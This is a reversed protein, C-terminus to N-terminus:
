RLRATGGLGIAGPGPLNASSDILLNLTAPICFVSALTTPTDTVTFGGAAPSGTQTIKRVDPLGFAGGNPQSPCFIGTADSTDQAVGTTLPGLTVDLPALFLHDPPPCDHTTLLDSNTTCPLGEREGANCVGAQCIPCANGSSFDAEVGTLYVWSKLPMTISGSGAAKDATGTVGDAIVNLVCTSTGTNNIPLPNGFFCQPDPLCVLSATQSASSVGCHGNQTCDGNGDLGGAGDICSCDEGTECTGGQPDTCVPNCDADANCVGEGLGPHGNVCHKATGPGRTCTRPNPNASPGLTLANGACSAVEFFNTSGDPTPGPPVISALGGGIYLCGQGLQGNAVVADTGDRLDGTHPPAAPAGQGPFGCDATPDGLTFALQSCEAQCATCDANCFPTGGGCNNVPADPDCAEGADVIGNGCSTCQTCTAECLPTAAGCGNPVANYDCSEGAATDVVGNGCPLTTSSTSTTTSTSTSSSTTTTPVCSETPCPQCTVKVKDADSVRRETGKVTAKLRKPKSPKDGGKRLNLVLSETFAGCASSAANPTVSIGLKRPKVKAVKIPAPQCSTSPTNLCARVRIKCSGNTAGDDDCEDGDTCSVTSALSEGDSDQLDILCETAPDNGKAFSTDTGIAVTVIAIVLATFVAPTLSRTKSM